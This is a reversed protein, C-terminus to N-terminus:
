LSYTMIPVALRETCQVPSVVVPRRSSHLFNFNVSLIEVVAKYSAYNSWRHLCSVVYDVKKETTFWTAISFYRCCRARTSCPSNGERGERKGKRAGEKGGESM